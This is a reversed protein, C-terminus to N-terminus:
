GSAKQLKDYEEVLTNYEEVLETNDKALTNYKEILETREAREKELQDTLIKVQEALEGDLIIASNDTLVGLEKLDKYYKSDEAIAEGKPIIEGKSLKVRCKTVYVM